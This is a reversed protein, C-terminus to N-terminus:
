VDELARVYTKCPKKRLYAKNRYAARCAREIPEALKRAERNGEVPLARAAVRADEKTPETSMPDMNGCGRWVKKHVDIDSQAM